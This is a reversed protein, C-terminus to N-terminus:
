GGIGGIPDPGRFGAQLTKNECRFLISTTWCYGNIPGFGNFDIQFFGQGRLLAACEREEERDSNDLIIVGDKKLLAPTAETCARRWRGDIVIIDFSKGQDTLASVYDSENPRHLISQNPSKQIKVEAAWEADSEVSTVSQCRKAWYHSSNGSGFEFVECESFDFSNLYEIAPYTYWPIPEGNFDVAMKKRISRWQGFHRSLLRVNKRFISFDDILQPRIKM